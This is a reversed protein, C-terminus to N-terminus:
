WIGPLLRYRVLEVYDQYGALEEQLTKDELVTRIILAVAMLIAPFLTWVSDLFFPTALYLLLAGAYGPHRMWRYPGSTIVCHGRETQIRVVGSFFRNEILAYSSIVYGMLIFLLALLRAVLSFPTSWGFLADLGAVFPILGGGLGVLPALIKDWSKTDDHDLMKARENLLDPNRRAAFARSVIFGVINVLGFVWAEWWNWRWSILLPLFPVVLVFFLAQLVARLTAPTSSRNM